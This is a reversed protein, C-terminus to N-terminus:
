SKLSGPLTTKFDSLYEYYGLEVKPPQPPPKTFSASTVHTSAVSPLVCSCLVIM